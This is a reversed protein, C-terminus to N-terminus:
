FSEITVGNSIKVKGRKHLINYIEDVNTDGGTNGISEVVDEAVKKTQSHKRAQQNILDQVDM